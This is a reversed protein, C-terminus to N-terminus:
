RSRVAQAPAVGSDQKRHPPTPGVTHSLSTTVVHGSSWWALTRPCSEISSEPDRALLSSEVTMVEASSSSPASLIVKEASRLIAPLCPRCTARSTSVDNGTAPAQRLIAWGASSGQLPAVTVVGPRVSVYLLCHKFFAPIKYPIRPKQHRLEGQLVQVGAFALVSCGRLRYKAGAFAVISSLRWEKMIFGDVHLPVFCTNQRSAPKTQSVAM